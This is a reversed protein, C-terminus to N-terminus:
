LSTTGQGVDNFGGDQFSPVLVGKSMRGEEAAAVEEELVMATGRNKSTPPREEFSSDQRHLQASIDIGHVAQSAQIGKAKLHEGLHLTIEAGQNALRRNRSASVKSIAVASGFAGMIDSVGKKTEKVSKRSLVELAQRVKEGGKRAEPLIFTFVGAGMNPLPTLWHIVARFVCGTFCFAWYTWFGGGRLWYINDFEEGSNPEVFNTNYKDRLPGLCKREMTLLSLALTVCGVSDPLCGLLKQQPSDAKFRMRNSAGIMAFIMTFCSLVAGGWTGLCAENCKGFHSSQYELMAAADKDGFDYLLSQPDEWAYVEMTCNFKPPLPHLESMETHILDRATTNVYLCTRALYGRLGIFVEAYDQEPMDDLLREWNRSYTRGWSWFSIRLLDSDNLTGLAGFMTFFFALITWGLAFSLICM